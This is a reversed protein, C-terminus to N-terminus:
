RMKKDAFGLKNINAALDKPITGLAGIIVPIFTFSYDPYM